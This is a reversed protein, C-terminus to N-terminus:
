LKIAHKSLSNEIKLVNAFERKKKKKGVKRTRIRKKKTLPFNKNQQM